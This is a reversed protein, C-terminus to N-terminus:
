NEEASGPAPLEYRDMPEGREVFWDECKPSHTLVPM